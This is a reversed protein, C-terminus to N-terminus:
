LKELLSDPVNFNAFVEQIDAHDELADYLKLVQEASKLDSIEVSFMPTNPEPTFIYSTSGIVGLSGGSKNFINKIEAVTRNNNDTIGKIYFAVGLPGFGEYIVSELAVGANKGTGKDIARQMVEKPMRAEKAKEVALRLAANSDPDGGGDRAAVTLLSSVKTFEASRKADNAGKKRKIQSWKNHGSM